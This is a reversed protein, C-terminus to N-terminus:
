LCLKGLNIVSAAIFGWFVGFGVLVVALGIYALKILPTFDVM